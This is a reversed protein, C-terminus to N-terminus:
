AARSRRGRDRMTSIPIPRPALDFPRPLSEERNEEISNSWSVGAIFSVVAGAALALTVAASVIVDGISKSGAPAAIVVIALFALLVGLALLDARSFEPLHNPKGPLSSKDLYDISPDM